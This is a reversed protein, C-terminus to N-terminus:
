KGRRRRPMFLLRIEWKLLAEIVKVIIFSIILVLALSQWDEMFFFYGQKEGAWAKFMFIFYFALAFAVAVLCLKKVLDFWAM